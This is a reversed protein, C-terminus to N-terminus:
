NSRPPPSEPTTTCGGVQHSDIPPVQHSTTIPLSADHDGPIFVHEQPSASARVSQDSRRPLPAVLIELCASQQILGEDTKCYRAVPPATSDRTLQRLASSRPLGSIAMLLSDTDRCLTTQGAMSDLENAAADADQIPVLLISGILLILVAILASRLARHTRISQISLRFM